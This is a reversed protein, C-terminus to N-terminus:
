RIPLTPNSPLTNPSFGTVNDRAYAFGAANVVMAPGTGATGGPTEWQLYATPYPLIDKNSLDATPWYGRNALRQM